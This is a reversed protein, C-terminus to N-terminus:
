EDMQGVMPVDPWRMWGDMYRDIYGEIWADVWEDIFADGGDMM